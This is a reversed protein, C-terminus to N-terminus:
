PVPIAEETAYALGNNTGVYVRGGRVVVATVNRSPLGLELITWRRSNRNYVALGRNLLGVYIREATVAMANPNVVLGPPLGPSRRWGGSPDFQWVSDGYTGVMWADDLAAVATIWNHGLRSNATSYSAKVLDGELVSLGGLTGALIRNGAAALTYVHNNVLGHFAYLSRAGGRDLLTIGAPTAVAVGDPTLAVDTVHTAILGESRTMTQRLRAAADFIALGNATAVMTNQSRPDFVIRNVCYVPEKEYHLLRTHDPSLVDFGRDFYGVWLRGASDVELASVDGDSLPFPEAQSFRRWSGQDYLHIGDAAVAATVSGQQILKRVDPPGEPERVRRKGLEVVGEDVTGVLLRSPAALLSRAFVGPALTRELKGYRLEAVGSPTGALVTEGRLALCLIRADPLGDKEEFASLRGGAWLLLGEAATGVWVEGEHALVATVARGRLSDHFWDFREGDFRLVGRSATGILVFGGPLVALATMKCLEPDRPAARQFRRGDFRVLGAGDTALLLEPGSAGPLEAVTIATVVAPPLEVGPRYHAALTGDEHFVALGSAGAAYLRRQFFTADIFSPASSVIQFVGGHGEGAPGFEAEIRNGAAVRAAADKLSKAARWLVFGGTGLIALLGGIAAARWPRVM